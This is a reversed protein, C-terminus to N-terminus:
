KIRERGYQQKKGNWQEPYIAVSIFPSRKMIGAYNKSIKRVIVPYQYHQDAM